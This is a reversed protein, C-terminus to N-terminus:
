IPWKVCHVLPSMTKFQGVLVRPRNRQNICRAAWAYGFRCVFVVSDIPSLRNKCLVFNNIASHGWAVCSQGQSNPLGWIENMENGGTNGALEKEEDKM